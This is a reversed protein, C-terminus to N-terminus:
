TVPASTAVEADAVASLIAGALETLSPDRAGMVLRSRARWGPDPVAVNGREGNGAWGEPALARAIHNNRHIKDV